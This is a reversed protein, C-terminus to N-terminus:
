LCWTNDVAMEGLEGVIFVVTRREGGFADLSALADNAGEKVVCASNVVLEKGSETGQAGMLGSGSFGSGFGDVLKEVVKGGVGVVASCIRGAVHYEASMGVSAEM